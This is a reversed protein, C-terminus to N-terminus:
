CSGVGCPSVHSQQLQVGTAPQCEATVDHIHLLGLFQPVQQPLIALKVPDVTCWFTILAQVAALGM